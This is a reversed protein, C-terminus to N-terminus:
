KVTETTMIFNSALNFFVSHGSEEKRFYSGHDHNHPIEFRIPSEYGYCQLTHVWLHTQMLRNELDNDTCIILLPAGEKRVHYLPSRADVVVKRPDMNDYKLYTFHTTPQGSALVWGAIETDPNIGYPDLFSRDAMLMSALYSGASHGGVYIHGNGGYKTINRFTWDVAAAGDQLAVPYPFEPYLRYNPTVVAIGAHALEEATEVIDEKKGATFGGGYFFVLTPFSEAGAPIYVNLRLKERDSGYFVVDEIYQIDYM